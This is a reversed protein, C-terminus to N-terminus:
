KYIKLRYLIYLENLMFTHNFEITSLEDYFLINVIIKRGVLNLYM